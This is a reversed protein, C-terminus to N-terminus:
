YEWIEDLLLPKKKNITIHEIKSSQFDEYFLKTM